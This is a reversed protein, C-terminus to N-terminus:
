IVDGDTFLIWGSAARSAGLWNAHNKGLWGVPLAEVHIVQLRSDPAALEDMIRGTGDASRDDVAVISLRPYDLALLSRLAAGINPEEDRAPVVVTVEPWDRDRAAAPRLRRPFALGWILPLVLSALAAATIWGWIQLLSAAASGPEVM